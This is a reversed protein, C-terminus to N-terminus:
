AGEDRTWSLIEEPFSPSWGTSHTGVPPAGHRSTAPLVSVHNQGCHDERHRHREDVLRDDGDGHRTDLTLEAQGGGSDLPHHVGVEEGQGREEGESTPQRVDEAMPAHADDADDDEGGCRGHAAQCGFAAVGFCPDHTEPDHLPGATGDHERGSEGDHHLRKRQALPALGQGDEEADRAAQRGDAGDEAAVQGLPGPPGDEPHVDRHRDDSQHQDRM